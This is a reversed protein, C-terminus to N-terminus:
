AYSATFLHGQLDPDTYGGQLASWLVGTGSGPAYTMQGGNPVIMLSAIPSWRHLGDKSTM